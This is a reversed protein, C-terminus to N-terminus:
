HYASTLVTRESEIVPDGKETGNFAAYWYQRKDCLYSSLTDPNTVLRIDTTSWYHLYQGGLLHFSRAVQGLTAKLDDANPTAHIAIEACSLNPSDATCPIPRTYSFDVEYTVLFQGMGLGPLFLPMSMHYWAGQLLKAGIWASTEVNYKEEANTQLVQPSFDLNIGHTESLISGHSQDSGAANQSLQATIKAILSDRFDSADAISEFDGKKSVQFKPTMLLAGSLLYMTVRKMNDNNSPWDELEYTAKSPEYSVTWSDRDARVSRRLVIAGHSRVIKDGSVNTDDADIAIDADNNSWDFKFEASRASFDKMLIAVNNDSEDENRWHLLLKYNDEADKRFGYERDMAIAAELSSLAAKLDGLEHDTVAINFQMIATSQYDLANRYLEVAHQAEELAQHLEDNRASQDGGCTARATHIKYETNAMRAQGLSLLVNVAPRRAVTDLQSQAADLKQRCDDGTSDSLFDAYDLRANLSEPSQPDQQELRTIAAEFDTSGIQKNPIAGMPMPDCATLGIIAAATATLIQRPPAM